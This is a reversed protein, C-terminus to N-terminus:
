ARPWSTVCTSRFSGLQDLYIDSLLDVCERGLGFPGLVPKGVGGCGNASRQGGDDAADGVSLTSAFAVAAARFGLRPSAVAAV